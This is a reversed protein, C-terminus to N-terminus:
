STSARRFCPLTTPCIVVSITRGSGPARDILPYLGRSLITQTLLGLVGVTLAGSVLEWRWSCSKKELSEIAAELDSRSIADFRFLGSRALASPLAELRTWQRTFHGFSIATLLIFIMIPYDRLMPIGVVAAAHNAGFLQKFDVRFHSPGLRGAAAAAAVCIALLVIAVAVGVAPGLLYPSYRRGVCAHRYLRLLYHHRSLPM